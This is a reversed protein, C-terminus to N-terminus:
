ERPHSSQVSYASLAGTQMGPRCGSNSGKSVDTARGLERYGKYLWGTGSIEIGEIGSPALVMGYEVLLEYRRKMKALQEDAIVKAKNAKDQESLADKWADKEEPSLDADADGKEDSDSDAYEDISKASVEASSSSSGDSSESASAEPSGGEAAADGGAGVDGRGARGGRRGGRGGGRAGGRRGAGHGRGGGGRKKGGGGHKKGGGAGCKKGIQTKVRTKPACGKMAMEFLRKAASQARVAKERELLRPVDILEVSVVRYKDLVGPRIPEWKLQFTKWGHLAMAALRATFDVEREFMPWGTADYETDVQFPTAPMDGLLLGMEEGVDDAVHSCQILECEFRGTQNLHAASSVFECYNSGPHQVMLLQLKAQKKGGGKAALSLRLVEKLAAMANIRDEGLARKCETCQPSTPLCAKPVVSPAVIRAIPRKHSQVWKNSRGRLGAKEDNVQRIKRVALPFKQDGMKWPTNADGWPYALGKRELRQQEAKRDREHQDLFTEVDDPIHRVAQSERRAEARCKAKAEPATVRWNRSSGSLIRVHRQTATEEPLSEEEQADQKQQRVFMNYSTLRTKHITKRAWMPRTFARQQKDELGVCESHCRTFERNTHNSALTSVLPPRLCRTVFQRMHAFALELHDTVVLASHFVLRLFDRIDEWNDDWAKQDPWWHRLKRCLGVTLRCHATALFKAKISKKEEEGVRPDVLKALSWPFQRFYVILRRWVNSMLNAVCGAALVTSDNDWMDERVVKWAGQRRGEDNSQFLDTLRMLATSAVSTETSCLGLLAPIDDPQTGDKFKGHAFLYNHVAQLPANAELWLLLLFPTTPKLVWRVSKRARIKAHKLHVAQADPDAGIAGAVSVDSDSDSNGGDGFAHQWTDKGLTNLQHGRSFTQFVPPLVKWKNLAPIETNPLVIPEAMEMAKEVMTDETCCEPGPCFHELLDKSDPDGEFHAQYKDGLNRKKKNHEELAKKDKESLHPSNEDADYYCVDFVDRLRKKNREEPRRESTRMDIRRLKKKIIAKLSHRLATQKKHSRLNKAACFAPSLLDMQKSSHCSCLSVQHNCCPIRLAAVNNPALNHIMHCTSVNAPCSDNALLLGVKDGLKGVAELSFTDGEVQELAGLQTASDKCQLSVPPMVVEEYSFKRSEGSDDSCRIFGHQSFITAEAPIAEGDPVVSIETEDWMHLACAVKGHSSQAGARQGDCMESAMANRVTTTFGTSSRLTQKCSRASLCGNQFSTRALQHETHKKWGGQGRPTGGTGFYDDRRVAVQEDHHLVHSQAARQRRRGTASRANRRRGSALQM